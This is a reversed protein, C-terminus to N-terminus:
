VVVCNVCTCSLVLYRLKQSREICSKKRVVTTTCQPIVVKVEPDSCKRWWQMGSTMWWLIASLLLCSEPPELMAPIFFFLFFLFSAVNTFTSLVSFKCPSFTMALHIIINGRTLRTHSFTSQWNGSAAVKPINQSFINAIFCEKPSLVSWAAEAHMKQLIRLWM